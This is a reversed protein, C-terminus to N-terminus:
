EQGDMSLDRSDFRPFRRAEPLVSRTDRPAAPILEANPIASERARARASGVFSYGAWSVNFGAKFEKGGRIGAPTTCRQSIGTSEIKYLPKRWGVASFPAIMRQVFIKLGGVVRTAFSM